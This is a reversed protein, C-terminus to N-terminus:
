PGLMPDWYYLITRKKDARADGGHDTRMPTLKMHCIPCNGPHDQVVQPHMGCTWLQKPQTTADNSIASPGGSRVGHSVAWIGLTVTVGAFFSVTISLWRKSMQVSGHRVHAPFAFGAM